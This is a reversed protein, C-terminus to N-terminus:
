ARKKSGVPKQNAVSIQSLSSPALPVKPQKPKRAERNGSQHKKAMQIKRKVAWQVYTNELFFCCSTVVRDLPRSLPWGGGHLGGVAFAERRSQMFLQGLMM